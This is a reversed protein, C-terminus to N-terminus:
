FISMSFITKETYKAETGNRSRAKCDIPVVIYRIIISNGEVCCLDDFTDRLGVLARFGPDKLFHFGIRLIICLRM